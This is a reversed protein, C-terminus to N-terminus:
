GAKRLSNCNDAPSTIRNREIYYKAHRSQEFQQVSTFTGDDIFNFNNLKKFLTILYTSAPMCYQFKWQVPDFDSVPLHNVSVYFNTEDFKFQLAPLVQGRNITIGNAGTYTYRTNYYACLRRLETLLYIKPHM